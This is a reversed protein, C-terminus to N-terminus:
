CTRYHRVHAIRDHAQLDEYFVVVHLPLPPLPQRRVPIGHEGEKKDFTTEVPGFSRVGPVGTEDGDIMVIVRVIIVMLMANVPFREPAGGRDGVGNSPWSEYTYIFQTVSAREEVIKFRRGVM